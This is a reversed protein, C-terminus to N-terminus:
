TKPPKPGPGSGTSPGPEPGSGSGPGTSPGPGPEPGASPGPGPRPGPDGPNPAAGPAAGGAPRPRRRVRFEAASRSRPQAPRPWPRFPYPKIENQFTEFLAIEYLYMGISQGLSRLRDIPKGSFLKFLFQLVAVAGLIIVSVYFAVGFLIMYILRVWTSGETLHKRIEDRFEDEGLRDEEM